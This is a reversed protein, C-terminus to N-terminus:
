SKTKQLKATVVRSRFVRSDKMFLNAAPRPEHGTKLPPINGYPGRQSQYHQYPYVVFDSLALASFLM